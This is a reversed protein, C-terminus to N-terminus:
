DVLFRDVIIDLGKLEIGPRILFQQGLFVRFNLAQKMCPIRRIAVWAQSVKQGPQRIEFFLKAIGFKMDGPLQQIFFVLVRIRIAIAFRLEIEM